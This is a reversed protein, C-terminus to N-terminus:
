QTKEMIESIEVDKAERWARWRADAESVPDLESPSFSDKKKMVVYIIACRKVTVGGPYRSTTLSAFARGQHGKFEYYNVGRQRFYKLRKTNANVGLVGDAFNTVNRLIVEYESSSSQKVTQIKLDELDERVRRADPPSIEVRWVRGEYLTHEGERTPDYAEIPQPVEAAKAAIEVISHRWSEEIQQVSALSLVLEEAIQESSKGAKLLERVQLEISAVVGFPGVPELIEKPVPAPRPKVNAPPKVKLSAAIRLVDPAGYGFLQGIEAPDEGQGVLWAIEKKTEPPVGKREPKRGLSNLYEREAEAAVVLSKIEDRILKMSGESFPGNPPGYTKKVLDFPPLPRGELTATYYSSLITDILRRIETRAKKDADKM